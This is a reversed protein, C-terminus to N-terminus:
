RQGDPVAVFLMQVAFLGPLLLRIRRTFGGGVIPHSFSIRYGAQEILERATSPTFFRLHTVDLIGHQEYDFKGALLGLRVRINAVNPLSIVVRGDQNVVSSIQRLVTWPDTLHELVDGCLVTDFGKGVMKIWAGDNLDCIFVQDCWKKARDAAESDIEVATVSCGHQVLYQSIFGDACGLELIRRGQVALGLFVQNRESQELPGRYRLASLDTLRM